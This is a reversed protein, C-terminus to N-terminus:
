PCWSGTQQKGKFVTISEQLCPTIIKAQSGPCPLSSTPFLFHGGGGPAWICLTINHSEPEQILDEYCRKIELELEGGLGHTLSSQVLKHSFEGFRSLYENMDGWRARSGTPSIRGQDVVTIWVHKFWNVYQPRWLHGCIGRFSTSLIFYFRPSHTSSDSSYDSQYLTADLHCQIM